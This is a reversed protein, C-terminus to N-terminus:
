KNSRGNKDESIYTKEKGGSKLVIKNKSLSDSFLKNKNKDFVKEKRM